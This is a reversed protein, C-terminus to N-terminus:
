TRCFPSIHGEHHTRIILGIAALVNNRIPRTRSICNSRQKPDNILLKAYNTPVQSRHM